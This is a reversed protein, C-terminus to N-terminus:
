RSLLQMGVDWRAELAGRVLVARARKDVELWTQILSERDVVVARRLVRADRVEPLGLRGETAMLLSWVVIRRGLALRAVVEPVAHVLDQLVRRDVVHRREEDLEVLDDVVFDAVVDDRPRLGLTVTEIDLVRAGEALLDQRLVELVAVERGEDALQVHVVEVLGLRLARVVLDELVGEEKAALPVQERLDLALAVRAVRQAHLLTAVLSNGLLGRRRVLRRHGQWQWALAERLYPRLALAVVFIETLLEVADWILAPKGVLRPCHHVLLGADALQLDGVVRGRFAGSSM